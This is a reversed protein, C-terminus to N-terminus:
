NTSATLALNDIEKLQSTLIEEEVQLFGYNKNYQQGETLIWSLFKQAQANNDRYIFGFNLVPILEIQERELLEITQDMDAQKLIERQEKKLDLPILALGEKLKGTETDFLYSLNNVTIGRHDKLIAHILYIDDGSIKKGKLEEQSYGFHASFSASFSTISNGSYITINHKQKKTYERDNTLRDKEFFLEKLRNNNLGKKNLEDLLPNDENTVPLLAVRGTYFLQKSEPFLEDKISSVLRLDAIKGSTKEELLVIEIGPNNKEYESVWKELLPIAFRLSEVYIKEKSGTEAKIITTSLLMVTALLIFRFSKM